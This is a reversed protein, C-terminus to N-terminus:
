GKKKLIYYINKDILINYLGGFSINYLALSVFVYGAVKLKSKTTTTNNIWPLTEFSPIKNKMKLNWM